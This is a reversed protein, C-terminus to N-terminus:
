GSKEPFEPLEDRLTFSGALIAGGQPAISNM